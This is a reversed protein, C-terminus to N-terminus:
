VQLSSDIKRPRNDLGDIGLRFAFLHLPWGMTCCSFTISQLASGCPFTGRKRRSMWLIGRWETDMIWPQPPQPPYHHQSEVPFVKERERARSPFFSSFFFFVSFVSCQSESTSPLGTERGPWKGWGGGVNLVAGSAPPRHQKRGAFLHQTAM